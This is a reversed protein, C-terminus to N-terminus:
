IDLLAILTQPLCEWNIENQQRYIVQMALQQLSKAELRLHVTTCNDKCTNYYCAGVIVVCSSLGLSGTHNDQLHNENATHKKATKSSLDM